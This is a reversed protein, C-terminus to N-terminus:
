PDHPWRWDAVNTTMHRASTPSESAQSLLRDLIYHGLVARRQDKKAAWMEWLDQKEADSADAALVIERNCDQVAHLGRFRAWLFGLGHFVFATSRISNDGSLYAYTQGLLATLM